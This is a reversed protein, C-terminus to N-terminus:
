RAWVGCRKKTEATQSLRSEKETNRALKGDELTVKVTPYKSNEKAKEQTSSSTVPICTEMQSPLLEKVM